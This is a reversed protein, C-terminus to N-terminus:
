NANSALDKYNLSIGKMYRKGGQGKHRAFGRAVLRDLFRRQTDGRNGTYHQYARYLDGALVMADPYVECEDEIFRGVIDQEARYDECAAEVARPLGPESQCAIVAGRVLWALVGGAEAQLKDMLKPDADAGAFTREFPLLRIRRWLGFTDDRVIPRYNTCLYLKLQPTFEFSDRHMFRGRIKDGGSLAKLKSEDLRRGEGSEVGLVFRAGRLAAIETSHQAYKQLMLVEPDIQHAYDGLIFQVLSLLSTKGNGGAGWAIFVLDHITLGTLGYGLAFQVYSVLAEDGNFIERMFLEFRPCRASPDFPEECLRTLYDERRHERLEGTDLQITGNAVNLLIPNADFEIEDADIGDLSKAVDLVAEIGAASELRRAFSYWKAMIKPDDTGLKHAKTRYIEGLSHALREAAKRSQCWRRGDWVLPGLTSSHRLDNGHIRQLERAASLETLPDDADADDDSRKTATKRTRKAPKPPEKPERAGKDLGDAVSRIIDHEDQGTTRAAEVLRQECQGRGLIHEYHGVAAASKYIQAHRDGETTGRLLDCEDDLAALAYSRRRKDDHGNSHAKGNASPPPAPRPETKARLLDMPFEVLSCEDPSVIWEYVKGTGPHVSGPFVIVGRDGKVDVGPAIEGASNPVTAGDPVKFYLHTGGGGTRVSVTETSELAEPEVGGNQPDIDIVAVGSVAGTRLGLNGGNRAHALLDDLSIPTESQWGPNIPRKGRMPTLAWGRALAARIEIELRNDLAAVTM